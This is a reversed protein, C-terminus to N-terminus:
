TRLAKNEGRMIRVGSNVEADAQRDKSGGAITKVDTCVLSQLASGRRPGAMEKPRRRADPARVIDHTRRICPRFSITRDVATHCTKARSRHLLRRGHDRLNVRCALIICSPKPIRYSSLLLDPFFEPM